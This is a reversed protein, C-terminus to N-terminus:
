LDLKGEVSWGQSFFLLVKWIHMLVHVWVLILAQQHEPYDCLPTSCPALSLETNFLHAFSIISPFIFDIARNSYTNTKTQVNLSCMQSSAQNLVCLRMIPFLFTVTFVTYRLCSATRRVHLTYSMLTFKVHAMNSSSRACHSKHKQAKSYTNLQLHCRSDTENDTHCTLLFYSLVSNSGHSLSM